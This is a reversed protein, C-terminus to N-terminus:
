LNNSKGWLKIVNASYKNERRTNNQLIIRNRECLQDTNPATWLTPHHQHIVSVNDEIFLKLGLIRIRQIIEDDDYGIGNAFREDFGNLKEMNTRSIASCFHFHVPRYKSHNYWGLTDGGIYPRQPLTKLLEDLTGNTNHEPITKTLIPDLGYASVSIYNSDNIQENFYALVDHVHICEPNQLVIIDGIAYRIGINFTVCPNIYWKGEKELRKIRLFPFENCLDEIREESSSGDDVAIVEFDKYQSKTISKLTEYFLKKRNYYGTVISIM